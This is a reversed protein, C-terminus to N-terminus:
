RGDPVPLDANSPKPHINTRMIAYMNTHTHGHTDTVYLFMSLFVRELCVGGGACWVCLACGEPYTTGLYACRRM